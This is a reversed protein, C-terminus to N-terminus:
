SGASLPHFFPFPNFILSKSLVVPTFLSLCFGPLNGTDRSLTHTTSRIFIAEQIVRSHYDSLGKANVFKYKHLLCTFLFNKSNFFTYYLYPIFVLSVLCPHSLVYLATIAVRLCWKSTYTIFWVVLGINDCHTLTSGPLYYTCYSM